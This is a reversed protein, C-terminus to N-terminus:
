KGILTYYFEVIRKEFNDKNGVMVRFFGNYDRAEFRYYFQSCYIKIKPKFDIM